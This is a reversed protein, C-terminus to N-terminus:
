RLELQNSFHIYLHSHLTVSYIIVPTFIAKTLLSTTILGLGMGMGFNEAATIWM